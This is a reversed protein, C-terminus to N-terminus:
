TGTFPPPAGDRRAAPHGVAPRLSGGAEVATERGKADRRPHRNQDWLRGGCSERLM